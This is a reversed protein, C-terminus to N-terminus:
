QFRQQAWRRLARRPTHRRGARLVLGVALLPLSFLLALGVAVRPHARLQARVSLQQRLAGRLRDVNARLQARKDAMERQLAMVDRRPETM